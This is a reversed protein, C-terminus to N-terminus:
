NLLYDRFLNKHAGRFAAEWSMMPAGQKIEAALKLQKHADGFHGRHAAVQTSLGRLIRGDAESAEPAFTRM